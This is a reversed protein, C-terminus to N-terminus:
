NLSEVFFQHVQVSNAANAVSWTGFLDLVVAAAPDFTSGVAPAANPLLHVGCGGASPLPAGIVAESSWRGQHMFNINNANFRATLYWELFWPVNTKAVANLAMAGGNALVTAGTRLDLTLTGPTTVVTSIRGAATVKLVKGPVFTNPPFSFKSAAAGAGAAGLLSTATTTNSLATGDTQTAAHTEQWSQISM